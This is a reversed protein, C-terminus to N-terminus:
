WSSEGAMVQQCRVVVVCILVCVCDADQNVLCLM